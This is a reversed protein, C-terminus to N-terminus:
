ILIGPADDGIYALILADAHDTSRHLRKKIDDKSEVTIGNKGIKYRPATLQRYLERDPPLMLDEGNDPDLAERLRWWYESRKNAMKFKGTKDRYRSKEAVNIPNAKVNDLVKVHDYVSSGIGIVDVNVIVRKDDQIERAVYTASTEGDPVDRGSIVILPAFWRGHRKSIVMDDEGGRAADVGMVELPTLVKKKLQEDYYEPPQETWRKQAAIVWESPIVQFPNSKKVRKFKGDYLRERLETPLAMLTKDYGTRMYVPNDEVKAPIFTRSRPIYKKGDIIIPEANKVERDENDVNIYWRKKGPKEPYDPHAEDLWPAWYDIIWEGLEDDPPNGTCVIQCFQGPIATRNWASLYRYQEKTFETIEDFGIFDYPRGKFKKVDQDYQIAGFRLLREDRTLLLMSGIKFNDLQPDILEDIRRFMGELQKYERRYIISYRHATMALGLLLDTKGGGSSGGFLIEDADSIYARLQPSNAFPLWIPQDITLLDILARLNPTLKSSEM